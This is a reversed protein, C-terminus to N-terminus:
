YIEINGMFIYESFQKSKITFSASFVLSSRLKIKILSAGKCERHLFCIETASHIDTIYSLDCTSALYSKPNLWLDAVGRQWLWANIRVHSGTIHMVPRSEVVGNEISSACPPLGDTM